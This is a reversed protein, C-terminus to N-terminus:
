DLNCKIYSVRILRCFHEALFGATEGSHVKQLRGEGAGGFNSCDGLKETVFVLCTVNQSKTKGGTYSSFM